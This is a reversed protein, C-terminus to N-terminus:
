CGKDGRVKVSQRREEIIGHGLRKACKRSRFIRGPM